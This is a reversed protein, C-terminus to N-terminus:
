PSPSLCRKLEPLLLSLFQECADAGGIGEDPGTQRLVYLKALASTGRGFAQRPRDPALWRGGTSWAWLIRLGDPQPPGKEFRGAKFEDDGIRIKEVKGAQAFGAHTYCVDPEHVAIPGARGCSLLVSVRQGSKRNVYSRSLYGAFQAVELQRADVPRAESQWDGLEPRLLQIHETLLRLQDESQGWRGAQRGSDVASAAVAAVGILLPLFRTM